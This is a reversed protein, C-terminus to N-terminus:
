HIRNMVCSFTQRIRLKYLLPRVLVSSVPTHMSVRVNNKFTHEGGRGRRGRQTSLIPTGMQVPGTESPPEAIGPSSGTQTLIQGCM